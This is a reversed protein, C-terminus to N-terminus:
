TEYKKDFKLESLNLKAYAMLFIKVKLYTNHDWFVYRTVYKYFNTNEIELKIEWLYIEKINKQISIFSFEFPHVFEPPSNRDVSIKALYM